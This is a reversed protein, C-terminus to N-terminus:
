LGSNVVTKIWEELIYIYNMSPYNRYSPSLWQSHMKLKFSGKYMWLCIELAKKIYLFMPCASLCINIGASFGSRLNWM